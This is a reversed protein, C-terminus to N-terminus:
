AWYVTRVLDLFHTVKHTVKVSCHVWGQVLEDDEVKVESAEAIKSGMKGDSAVDRVERAGAEHM